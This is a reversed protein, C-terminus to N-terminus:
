NLSQFTNIKMLPSSRGKALLLWFIVTPIFFVDTEQLFSFLKMVKVCQLVAFVTRISIMFVLKRDEGLSSCEAKDSASSRLTKNEM